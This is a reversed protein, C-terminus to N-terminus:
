VSVSAADHLKADWQDNAVHQQTEAQQVRAHEAMARNYEQQAREAQLIAEQQAQLAATQMRAYDARMQAELVKPPVISGGANEADIIGFNALTQAIFPISVQILAAYPGATILLDTYKAITPQTEAVKAVETAIPGWHMGFTAAQAYQKGLLCLGQGLQGVGMLGQTRLELTSQTQAAQTAAPTRTATTKRASRAPPAKMASLDIPM